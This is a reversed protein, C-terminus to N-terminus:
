AAVAAKRELKFVTRIVGTTIHRHNTVPPAVFRELPTGEPAALLGLQRLVSVIVPVLVRTNGDAIKIAIGLGRSRVGVGQISEGGVKSVWDGAGATMVALDGRGEGSVMAPHATMAAFIEQPATGYAPDPAPAALRAFALALNRLPLAFNPASCGDIGLAIGPEPVDTFHAVARKIESQVPHDFDLYHEPAAGLLRCFALMGAHKGSCNNLVPSFAAPNQGQTGEARYCIPVHSGCQLYSEDLDVKALISRVARDHRPEGSHSACIVAVEAETLGLQKPGGKSVFTMAQFPKCASRTYIIREPAGIQAVPEGALNVAVVAGYHVSEVTDGRTVEALPVFDDGNMPENM